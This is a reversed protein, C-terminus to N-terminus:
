KGHLVGKFLEPRGDGEGEMRIERELEDLRASRVWWRKSTQPWNPGYM